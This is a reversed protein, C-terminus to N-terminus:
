SKELINCPGAVGKGAMNEKRGEHQNGNDPYRGESKQAAYAEDTLAKMHAMHDHSMLFATYLAGEFEQYNDYGNYIACYVALIVSRLNEAEYAMDEVMTTMKM